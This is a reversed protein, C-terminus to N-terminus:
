GGMDGLAFACYVARVYSVQRLVNGNADCASRPGPARQTDRLLARVEGASWQPTRAQAAPTDTSGREPAIWTVVLALQTEAPQSRSATTDSALQEAADVTLRSAGPGWACWLFFLLFCALFLLPKRLPM